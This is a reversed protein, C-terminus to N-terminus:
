STNSKVNDLENFSYKNMIDRNSSQYKVVDTLSLMDPIYCDSQILNQRTSNLYKGNTFVLM